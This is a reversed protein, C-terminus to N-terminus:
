PLHASLWSQTFWDSYAFHMIRPQCNLLYTYLTVHLIAECCVYRNKWNTYDKGLTNAVTDNRPVCACQRSGSLCSPAGYLPM